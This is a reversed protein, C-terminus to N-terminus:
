SFLAFFLHLVRLFPARVSIGSFSHALRGGREGGQYGGGIIYMKCTHAIIQSSM